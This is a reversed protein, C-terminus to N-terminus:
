SVIVGPGWNKGNNNSRHVVTRWGGSGALTATYAVAGDSSWDSAPDCCSNPLSGGHFWTVGGDTSYNMDQGGPGNSGAIVINPDVPNFEIGTENDGQAMPGEGEVPVAHPLPDTAYILPKPPNQPDPHSYIGLGTRNLKGNQMLGGFRMAFEKDVERPYFEGIPFGEAAMEKRKLVKFFAPVGPVFRDNAPLLAIDAATLDYNRDDWPGFRVLSAYDVSPDVGRSQEITAASAQKPAQSQATVLGTGATLALALSCVLPYRMNRFKM